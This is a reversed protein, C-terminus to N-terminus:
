VFSSSLSLGLTFGISHPDHMDQLVQDIHKFFMKAHHKLGENEGSKINDYFGVAQARFLANPKPDLILLGLHVPLQCLSRSPTESKLVQLNTVISSHNLIEQSIEICLCYPGATTDLRYITLRISMVIRKRREKM